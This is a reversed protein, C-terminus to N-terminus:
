ARARRETSPETSSAPCPQFDTKEDHVGLRLVQVALIRREAAHYLAHVDHVRYRRRRNGKVVRGVRGLDHSAHRRLGEAYIVGLRLLESCSGGRPLKPRSRYPATSTEVPTRFRPYRASAGPM